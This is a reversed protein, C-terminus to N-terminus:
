HTQDVLKASASCLDFINSFHPKSTVDTVKFYQGPYDAEHKVSTLQHKLLFILLSNKLYEQGSTYQKSGTLLITETLTAKCVEVRRHHLSSSTRVYVGELLLKVCSDTACLCPEKTDATSSVHLAQCFLLPMSCLHLLFKQAQLGVGHPLPQNYGYLSEAAEEGFVLHGGQSKQKSRTKIQNGGGITRM